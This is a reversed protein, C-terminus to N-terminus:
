VLPGKHHYSQSCCPTVASRYSSVPGIEKKWRLEGECICLGMCLCVCWRGREFGPLHLSLLCKRDGERELTDCMCLGQQTDRHADRIQHNLGPDAEKIGCRECFPKQKNRCAVLLCPISFMKVHM